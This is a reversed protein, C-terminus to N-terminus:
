KDGLQLLTAYVSKDVTEHLEDTCDSVSDLSDDTLSKAVCYYLPRNVAPLM